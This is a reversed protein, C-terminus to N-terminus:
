CPALLSFPRFPLNRLIWYLLVTVLTAYAAIRATGWRPRLYVAVALSGLPVLLLNCRLSRLIHGHLLHYLARTGGCGPCYLHTLEHFLCKPLWPTRYPDVRYLLVCAGALVVAAACLVAWKPPLRRPIEDSSLNM